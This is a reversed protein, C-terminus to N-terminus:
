NLTLAPTNKIDNGSITILVTGVGLTHDSFLLTKDAGSNGRSSFAMVFTARPDIGYTREYHFMLCPLTDGNEILELDQQMELSFYQLRGYFEQDNSLGYKNADKGKPVQIRFTYYQMDSIDEKAAKLGAPTLDNQKKDQLVVYDLPKYQLEFTYDSITKTAHLGSEESEVWQIYEAVPLEQIKGIGSCGRAGALSIAPLLFVIKLLLNM